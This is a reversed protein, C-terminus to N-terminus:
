FATTPNKKDVSLVEILYVGTQFGRRKPLAIFRRHNIMLYKQPKQYGTLCKTPTFLAFGISM